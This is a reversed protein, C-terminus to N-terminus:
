PQPTYYHLLSVGGEGEGPLGGGGLARTAKQAM